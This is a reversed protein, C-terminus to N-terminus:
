DGTPAARPAARSAPLPVRLERFGYVNLVVTDHFRTRTVTQQHNYVHIHGHLHYRPRCLRLFPRFVAFGQHCRDPQDHIGRPPAHTILIDLFRGHRLRNLLLRPLLRAIRLAMEAETRQAPGNNYRRSGALGAILLGGARVARGDLDMMDWAYGSPVAGSFEPGDDHNGRVAHVPVDLMSAIFDLYIYPLDGCGLVLDVAGFRARIRDSYILGDVRDSVALVTVRPEAPPEGAASTTGRAGRGTRAAEGSGHM